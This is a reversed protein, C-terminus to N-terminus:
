ISFKVDADPNEICGQLIDEVFGVFNEYVGWGNSSNFKKFHNPNSKLMALGAQLQPIMQGATKIGDEDGHWLLQYIGAETAMKGLNHTINFEGVNVRQTM